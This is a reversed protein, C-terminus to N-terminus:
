SITVKQISQHPVYQDFTSKLKQSAHVARGLRFSASALMWALLLITLHLIAIGRASFTLFPFVLYSVFADYYSQLVGYLVLCVWCTKYARLLLLFLAFLLLLQEAVVYSSLQNYRPFACWVVCVYVFVSLRCVRVCVCICVISALRPCHADNSFSNRRKKIKIMRIFLDRKEIHRLLLAISYLFM